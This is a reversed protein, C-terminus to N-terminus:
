FDKFDKEQLDKEDLPIVEDPKVGKKELVAVERTKAIKAPAAIAHHIGPAVKTRATEHMGVGVHRGQQVGEGSSGGVIVMLEGVSGKMQEAQANM